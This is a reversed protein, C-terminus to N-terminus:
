QTPAAGAAATGGAPTVTALTQTAKWENARQTAANWEDMTAAARADEHL